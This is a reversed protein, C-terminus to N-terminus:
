ILESAANDTVFGVRSPQGSAIYDWVIPSADTIPDPARETDSANPNATQFGLDALNGWLSAETLMALRSSAPLAAIDDLTALDAEIAPAALEAAKVPGFPDIGAWRGEHFYDVAHLLRRYFYSEAWLFPADFWSRGFFSAGTSAWIQADQEQEPLPTVAQDEIEALLADLAHEISPPYPFAARTQAILAPHRHKLVQWPYSGVRKCLIVPPRDDSTRVTNPSSM